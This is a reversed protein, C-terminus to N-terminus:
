GANPSASIFGSSLRARPASSSSAPSSPLKLIASTLAASAAHGRSGGAGAGAGAGLHMGRLVHAELWADIVAPDRTCTVAIHADGQSLLRLEHESSAGAGSRGGGGGSGGAASFANPSGMQGIGRVSAAALSSAPLRVGHRRLSSAFVHM